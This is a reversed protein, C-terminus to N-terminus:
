PACSQHYFRCSRVIDWFYPSKGFDRGSFLGLSSRSGSTLERIGLYLKGLYVQSILENVSDPGMGKNVGLITPMNV